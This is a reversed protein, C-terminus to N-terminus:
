YNIYNLFIKSSNSLCSQNKTIIYSKLHMPITELLKINVLSGEQLEKEIYSKPFLSYFWDNVGISFFDTYLIPLNRIENDTIGNKYINNKHSTVLLFEDCKFPICRYNIDFFPQYSFAIDITGDYISNIINNAPINAGIIDGFSGIAISTFDLSKLILIFYGNPVSWNPLHTNELTNYPILLVTNKDIIAISAVISM